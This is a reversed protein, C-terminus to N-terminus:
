LYPACLGFTVVGASTLDVKSDRSVDNSPLMCHRVDYALTILWEVYMIGFTNATSCYLTTRSYGSVPVCDLLDSCDSLDVVHLFVVCASRVAISIPTRRGLDVVVRRSIWHDVCVCGAVVAPPPASLLAVWRVPEWYQNTPRRCGHCWVGLDPFKGSFSDQCHVLLVSSDPQLQVGIAWGTVSMDLIYIAM